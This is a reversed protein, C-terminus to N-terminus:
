VGQVALEFDIRGVLDPHGVDGVDLGVLAPQIQRDDDVEERPTHDAPGCLGRM